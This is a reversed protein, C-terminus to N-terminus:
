RVPLPPKMPEEELFAACSKISAGKKRMSWIGARKKWDKNSAVADAMVTVQYGRKVASNVTARVCGEAFVGAIALRTLEKKRLYASLAPNSFADSAEKSFVPFGAAAIRPDIEAGISGRIASHRRFFNAFRDAPSFESVIFMADIKGTRAAALLRAANTLIVAARMAGITLRGNAELFDRQFDVFLIGTSKM